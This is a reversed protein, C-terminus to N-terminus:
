VIEGIESHNLDNLIMRSYSKHLFIKAHSKVRFTSLSVHFGRLKPILNRNKYGQYVGQDRTKTDHKTM